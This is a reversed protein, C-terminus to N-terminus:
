GPPEQRTLARWLDGALRRALILMLSSVAATLGTWVLVKVAGGSEDDADKSDQSEQSDQSQRRARRKKAAVVRAQEATLIPCHGSLVANFLAGACLILSLFYFWTMLLLFVGLAKFAAFGAGLFHLYLPFIQTLLVFSVGALVAGKWVHWLKLKANPVFRYLVLFMLIASTVSVLWGIAFAANPVEFPLIDESLGVLFGTISSSAVSISILVAYVAMMAFSVQRQRLFSRDPVGYFRDFVTAMTGFLNSGSWLLGVVSIIGFISGLDRTESIFSVLDSAQSPFQQAIATAIAAQREPDRLVLGLLALMGVVLPFLSFLLQWAILIAGEGTRLEGWATFFQGISTKRAQQIAQNVSETSSRLTESSAFTAM